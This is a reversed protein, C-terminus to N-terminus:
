LFVLKVLTIIGSLLYIIGVGKRITSTNLKLYSAIRSGGLAYAIFIVACGLINFLSFKGFSNITFFVSLQVYVFLWFTIQQPHIIISIIGRTITANLQKFDEQKKNAALMWIGFLLSLFSGAFTLYHILDSSGNFWKFFRLSTYCYIFEFVLSLVFVFSLLLFRKNGYLEMLMLNINGPFIYGYIGTLFAILYM